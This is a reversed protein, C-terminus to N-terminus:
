ALDGEIIILERRSGRLAFKKAEIYAPDNYCAKAQEYSPFEVALVRNSSQAEVLVSPDLFKLKAKYQESIPAWLRGYEHQADPDVVDSGFIIWYGKM